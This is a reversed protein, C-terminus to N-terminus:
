KDTLLLVGEAFKEKLARRCMNIYFELAAADSPCAELIESFVSCAGEFDLGEYAAVGKEFEDLYKIRERRDSSNLGDLVEYIRVSEGKGKVRAVGLNRFVYIEKRSLKQYTVASIIIAAGFKRTLGELRSTLNVNDSMVTSDIRKREGLIGLMLSGTHIGFGVGIPPYGSAASKKNFDNLLSLIDFASKLADDPSDPYLAMISDGIYKDIFGSNERISPGVLSLYSNIFNFNEEPSLHESITTFGVIDSFLITMEKEIQDGLEIEKISEKNLFRLFEEPVFRYYATNLATIDNIFDNISKAMNNFALTLATLEDNGKVPISINYEGKSIMSAGDRLRRLTKLMFYSVVSLLAIMLLSILIVNETIRNLLRRNDNELAINDQGIEILGAIKGASDFVPAVGYFWNGWADVSNEILIDGEIAQEYIGDPENLYGFPHKATVSDNLFMITYITDGFKKHLTFYFGNNWPDQNNNLLRLISEKLNKYSYNMFDLHSRINNFDDGNISLSITQLMSAIKENLLKEHRSTLDNYVTLSTLIIALIVIPVYILVQKIIVSIKKKLVSRYIFRLLFIFILVALLLVLYHAGIKIFFKVPLSASEEIYLVDGDEGDLEMVYNEKNVLLTEERSLSLTYYVDNVPVGHKNSHERELLNVVGGAPTIKMITNNLIDTFYVNDSKVLNFPLTYINRYLLREGYIQSYLYIEGIKNIYLLSNESDYTINSIYINADRYKMMEKVAIKETAINFTYAFIGERTATYWLIRNDAYFISTINSRQVDQPSAETYRNHFIVADFRGNKDYRIIDNRVTHFGFEDPVQNVVYLNEESDIAISVAYYFGGENQTGGFIIYRLTNTSDIKLIRKSSSDLVYLNGNADKVSFSPEIFDLGHLGMANILDNRTLGISFFVIFIALSVALVGYLVKIFTNMTADVGEQRLAM